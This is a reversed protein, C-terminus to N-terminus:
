PCESSFPLVPRPQPLASRYRVALPPFPLTLRHSGPEGAARAGIRHPSAAIRRHPSAAIRRHPSAAIRRHPSAAIRRHPSAAIRRHPSAAIRRNYDVSTGETRILGQASIRETRGGIAAFAADPARVAVTGIRDLIDMMSRIGETSAAGSVMAVSSRRSDCPHSHAFQLMVIFGLCTVGPHVWAQTIFKRNASREPSIRASRYSAKKVVACHAGEGMVPAYKCEPMASKGVPYAIGKDRGCIHKHRRSVQIPDGTQKTMLPRRLANRLWIGIVPTNGNGPPVPVRGGRCGARGATRAAAGAQRPSDGQARRRAQGDGSRLLGPAAQAPAAFIERQSAAIGQAGIAERVQQDMTARISEYFATM